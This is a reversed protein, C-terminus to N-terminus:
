NVSNSKQAIRYVCRRSGEIIHEIRHILIKQGVATQFANLEAQCLSPCLTAAVCIPCHNEVFFFYENERWWEALYGEKTRIKALAEVKQELTIASKLLESYNAAAERERSQVLADMAPKGLEANIAHILQTALESHGDPFSGHGAETLEWMQSPRGVGSPSSSSKVYGEKSLKVLQQRAGEDSIQLAAGITASSQRGKTKLQYLLRESTSRLTVQSNELDNSSKNKDM